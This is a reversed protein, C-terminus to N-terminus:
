ASGVISGSAFFPQKDACNKVDDMIEQLEPSGSAKKYSDLDTWQLSTVVKYPSEDDCEITSYGKLGHKGWKELVLPM